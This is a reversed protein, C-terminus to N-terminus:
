LADPATFFKFFCLFSCSCLAHLRPLVGVEPAAIAQNRWLRGLTPALPAGWSQCMVLIATFPLAMTRPPAFTSVPRAKQIQLAQPVVGSCYQM